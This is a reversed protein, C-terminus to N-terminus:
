AFLNFLLRWAFISAVLVAVYLVALRWHETLRVGSAILTFGVLHGVLGASQNILQDGYVGLLMGIAWTLWAFFVVLALRPARPLSLTYGAHQM